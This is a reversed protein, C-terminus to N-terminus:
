VQQYLTVMFRGFRPRYDGIGKTNGAKELIDKLINVSINTDDLIDIVFQLKWKNFRPRWKIVSASGIVVRRADIEYPLDAILPINEPSVAIGSLIVNKYSKKGEFKFDVAASVMSQFIHESPKYITGDPNKYLLKEAEEEPVYVKRKVKKTGDNDMSFRNHLLPVIGTIEVNIRKM